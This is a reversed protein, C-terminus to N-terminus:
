IGLWKNCLIMAAKIAVDMNYYEWDAFRGTFYFNDKRMVEKLENIMEKTYSTQIPYTYKNYKHTIYRPSFPMRQLNDKIASLSIEDTFEITGTMKGSANNTESFNGTCIIRHSEYESSPLYIWSYPNREIECFVTTTGHYLLDDINKKYNSINVGEVCMPLQKINGCFVVIDFTESDVHWVGKSYKLKDIGKGYKVTIGAALRDAFFQSGGQKPYWFTSHVFDREEVHNINNFFIETVTPMPLKGELWSIPIEKLPCRWVKKNYPEFYLEFLTNGFRKKLFDEFNDYNFNREKAISLFDAVCKLQWEKPLLYVHNEIPYPVYLDDSLAICSTRNAKVYELDFDVFRKIWEMVDPYKSNLVHGGCTHFLSGNIRDCKILGGPRNDKEYVTVLYKDKLLQAITLGSIGAGIVAVKQRRM